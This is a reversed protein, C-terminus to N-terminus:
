PEEIGGEVSDIVIKEAVDLVKEAAKEVVEDSTRAESLVFYGNKELFGVLEDHKIIKEDFHILASGTDPNTEVSTVGTLTRVTEGFSTANQANHYIYPTRIRIRGPEYNYYYEM